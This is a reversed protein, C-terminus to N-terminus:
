VSLGSSASSMIPMTLDMGDLACTGSSSGGYTLSPAGIIANARPSGCGRRETGTDVGSAARRNERDSRLLLTQVTTSEEGDALLTQPRSRCKEFHTGLLGLEWNCIM